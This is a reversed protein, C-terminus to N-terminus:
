GAGTEELAYAVAETLSMAMGRAYEAEWVEDGLAVHAAREIEEGRVREFAEVTLAGREVRAARVAGSLRAARVADGAELAVAALADLIGCTRVPGAFRVSVPLAERLFAGARELEGRDLLVVGLNETLLLRAYADDGHLTALQAELLGLARDSDGRALAQYALNSTTVVVLDDAGLEIALTRSEEIQRAAREPIELSSRTSVSTTSRSQWATYTVSPGPLSSGSRTTPTVPTSTVRTIPASPHPTCCRRASTLRTSRPRGRSRGSRWDAAMSWSDQRRGSASLSGVLRFEQTPDHNESFFEIAARINDTEADLRRTSSEDISMLPPELEEALALVFEGHRNRLEEGEGAAALNEAAFERITELMSYRPRPRYGSATCARRSFRSSRTPDAGAVEEAAEYLCGGRFVSLSRLLRQESEDLLDYSWGITARLTQQRPDSDRGGKLLDLRESIRGLLEEPSFLKARAAALEIALPLGELRQCLDAVPDTSQM